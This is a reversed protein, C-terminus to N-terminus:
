LYVVIQFLKKLKQRGNRHPHIGEDYWIRYRKQKVWLMEPYVIDKNIHAYSIFIFPEEGAYARFPLDLSRKEKEM